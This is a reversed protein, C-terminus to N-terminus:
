DSAANHAAQAAAYSMALKPVAGLGVAYDYHNGRSRYGPLSDERFKAWADPTWAFMLFWEARGDPPNGGALNLFWNHAQTVHARLTGREDRQAGSLAYDDPHWYEAARAVYVADLADLLAPLADRVIQRAEADLDARVGRLLERARGGAHQAAAHNRYRDAYDDADLDAATFTSTTSELVRLRGFREVVGALAAAFSEPVECGLADLHGLVSALESAGVERSMPLPPLGGAAAIAAAATIARAIPAPSRTPAM